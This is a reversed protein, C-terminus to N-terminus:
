CPQYECIDAQLQIDNWKTILVNIKILNDNKKNQM